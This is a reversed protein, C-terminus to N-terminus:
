VSSGWFGDLTEGENYVQFWPLYPGSNVLVDEFGGDSVIAAEAQQFGAVIFVVVALGSLRM